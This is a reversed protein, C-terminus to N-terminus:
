GGRTEEDGSSAPQLHTVEGGGADAAHPRLALWWARAQDDTWPEDTITALRRVLEAADQVRDVPDKALCALVIRDLAPPIAFAGRESPPVPPSQLHRSMIQMATAGEFVQLATLLYYAVCGLAYLDARGDVTDSLAMEPAMYGPTGIILGAETTL